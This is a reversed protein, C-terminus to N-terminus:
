LLKLRELLLHAKGMAISCDHLRRLDAGSLWSTRWAYICMKAFNDSWQRCVDVWQKRGLRRNNMGGEELCVYILAECRRTRMLHVAAACEIRVNGKANATDNGKPMGGKTVTKGANPDVDLIPQFSNRASVAASKGSAASVADRMGSIGGFSVRLMRHLGYHFICRKAPIRSYIAGMQLVVEWWADIIVELGFNALCDPRNRRRVWCVMARPAEAKFHKRNAMLNQAKGDAFRFFLTERNAGSTDKFVVKSADWLQQDFDVEQAAAYM